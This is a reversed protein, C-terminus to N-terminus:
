SRLAGSWHPAPRRAALGSRLAQLVPLAAAAAMWHKLSHGSLWGGTLAHIPADAMEFAKALGYCLLIAVVGTASPLGPGRVLALGALLLMGSVQLAAWPLLNGNAQWLLAAVGGWLLVLGQIAWASRRDLRQAFVLSLVGAFAPVMCLRDILLRQDDPALHYWTSGCATLLLGGFFLALAAAEIAPLPDGRTERQAMLYLGCLGALAFGLNSLVDGAHPLGLWDSQDAFAHYHAVQALPAAWASSLALFLLLFFVGFGLSPKDSM